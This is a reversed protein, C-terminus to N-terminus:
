RGTGPAFAIQIHDLARRGIAVVIYSDNVRALARQGEENALDEKMKCMRIFMSGILNLLRRRRLHDVAPRVFCFISCCVLSSSSRETVIPHISRPETPVAVPRPNKPNSNGNTSAASMTGHGQLAQSLSQLRALNFQTASMGFVPAPVPAPTPSQSISNTTRQPPEPGDTRSLMSSFATSSSLTALASSIKLPANSTSTHNSGDKSDTPASTAPQTSFSKQPAKSLRPSANYRDDQHPRVTPTPTQPPKHYGAAAPYRQTPPHPQPSPSRPRQYVLRSGQPDVDTRSRKRPPGPSTPRQAREDPESDRERRREYRPSMIKV